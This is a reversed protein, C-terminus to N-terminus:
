REARTAVVFPRTTPLAAQRYQILSTAWFSVKRPRNIQNSFRNDNSDGSSRGRLKRLVQMDEITTTSSVLRAALLRTIQNQRHKEKNEINIIRCAKRATVCSGPVASTNARSAQMNALAPTSAQITRRFAFSVGLSIPIPADGSHFDSSHPRTIATVHM